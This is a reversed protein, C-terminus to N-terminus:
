GGPFEPGLGYVIGLLQSAHAHMLLQKRTKSSSKASINANCMAMIREVPMM